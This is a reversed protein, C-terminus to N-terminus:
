DEKNNKDNRIYVNYISKQRLKSASQVSPVDLTM